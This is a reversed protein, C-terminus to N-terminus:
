SVKDGTKDNEKTKRWRGYELVHVSWLVPTDFASKPAAAHPFLPNLANSSITYFEEKGVVPNPNGTIKFDSM